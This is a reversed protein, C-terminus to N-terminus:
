GRVRRERGAWLARDLRLCCAGLRSSPGHNSNATGWCRCRHSMSATYRGRPVVVASEPAGPIHLIGPELGGMGETPEATGGMGETPEAAGGMGETPQATGGMGETPEATGGMGETPQATGGMGGTPEATGGMGAGGGGADSM